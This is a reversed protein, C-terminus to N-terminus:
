FNNPNDFQSYSEHFKRANPQMDSKLTRIHTHTLKECINKQKTKRREAM